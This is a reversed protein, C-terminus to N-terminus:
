KTGCTRWDVKSCIISGREEGVERRKGGGEEQEKKKEKEEEEAKSRWSRKGKRKRSEKRRGRGWRGEGKVRNQRKQRRGRWSDAAGPDSVKVCVHM